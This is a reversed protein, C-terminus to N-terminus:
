GPRGMEEFDYDAAWDFLDAEYGRLGGAPASAGSGRYDFATVRWGQTALWRAFPAYYDQTVGM